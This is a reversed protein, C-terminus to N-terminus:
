DHNADNRGKSFQAIVEVAVLDGDKDVDLFVRTGDPSELRIEEGSRAGSKLVVFVGEKNGNIVTDYIQVKDREIKMAKVETGDQLVSVKGM